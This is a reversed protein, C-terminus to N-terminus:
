KWILYYYIKLILYPFFYLIKSIMEVTHKNSYNKKELSEVIKNAAYCCKYATRIGYDVKGKGYYQARNKKIHKWLQAKVQLQVRARFAANIGRIRVKTLDEPVAILPNHIALNMWLFSDQGYRM